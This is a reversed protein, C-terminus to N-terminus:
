ANTDVANENDKGNTAGTSVVVMAPRLLRDHILYGKQYEQVVTNPPQDSCPEQCMAQHFAPDFPQGLSNIPTVHNQELIKKVEALTLVVGDVVSQGNQPQSDDTASTVARELNDVVTLLQSILKETAFKRLDDQERAARKKYNELEAAMRLMRDRHDNADAQAAALQAELDAQSDAADAVENETTSAAESEQEIEDDIVIKKEPAM